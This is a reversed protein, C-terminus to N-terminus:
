ALIAVVGTCNPRIDLQSGPSRYAKMPVELPSYDLLGVFIMDSVLVSRDVPGVDRM